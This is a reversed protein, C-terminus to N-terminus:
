GRVEPFHGEQFHEILFTVGEKALETNQFSYRAEELFPSIDEYKSSFHGILLSKARAAQALEAAQRATSHFREAAKERLDDLYTAEHYILNCGIVKEAISLDFRTDACYGYSRPPNSSKTVWENKVVRGSPHVYDLGEKLSPYFSTPVDLDDARDPDIKRPKEKERIVFGWCEIRHFVRFCTVTFKKGDVLQKEEELAHFHLPYSLNAQAAEFMLDLIPMLAAPGYLHVPDKRSTLSFSNLLGPLGLYHDGHLHSIFIHSIRSRRIKFRNMQEQAGEGCDLLFLEDDATIVQCTPHREHM